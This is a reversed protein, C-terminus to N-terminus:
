ASAVVPGALPGRGAEDVGAVRTFGQSLIQNEYVWLKELRNKEKEEMGVRKEFKALLRKAGARPDEQLLKKLLELAKLASGEKLARVEVEPLPPLNSMPLVMGKRFM